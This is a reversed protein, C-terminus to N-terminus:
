RLKKILNYAEYLGLEGAKSLDAVGKQTEGLYIYTLGRNYYAEAFKKNIGIAQTYLAIAANYDQLRSMINAKNYYAFFLEPDIGIATDYDRILLEFDHSFKKDTAEVPEKVVSKTNDAESSIAVELKKRRVEARCMYALASGGDLKIAESFDNVANDFDQVLTYNIARYLYNYYNDKDAAIKESILDINKFHYAVLADTLPIESCVFYLRMDNKHLDNLRNLQASFYHEPEVNKNIRYPSLVFNDQPKVDVQRNQINGRVSNKGFKDDGKDETMEFLKAWDSVGSESNAIKAENNPEDDDKASTKKHQRRKSEIQIATQMDRYSAKNNQLKNYSEARLSYAPAFNPYREIIKSLDAIAERHRGLKQSIIARQYRAEYMGGDIKVLQNLDALAKNYDGIEFTILSRNFLAMKNNHSLELAKSLDSLAARYNHKKYFLNARNIYHEANDTRLSIAVNYDALASDNKEMLMNILARGGWAAALYSHSGVVSDMTRFAAVTDGLLLQVRGKEIAIQPEKSGNKRLIFDIDALEETYKKQLDYAELRGIMYSTNEPSLELAKSFDSEAKAYEGLRNYVYGRAYYAHPIFQNKEIARDLDDLAGNYDELSIKAFARYMYAQEIYPKANIVKNFYQIALVYDNFYMANNGVRMLHETNVQGCVLTINVAVFLSLITKKMM